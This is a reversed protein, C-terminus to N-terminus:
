REAREALLTRWEDLTVFVEGAEPEDRWTWWGGARKSLADLDGRMNEDVLVMFFQPDADEHVISWVAFEIDSDWGACVGEESIDRIMERLLVAADRDSARALSRISTAYWDYESRHLEALDAGIAAAAALLEPEEADHILRSGPPSLTM